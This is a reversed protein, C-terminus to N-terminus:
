VNFPLINIGNMDELLIRYYIDSYQTLLNSTNM